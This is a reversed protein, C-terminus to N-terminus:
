AISYEENTVDELDITFSLDLGSVWGPEHGDNVTLDVKSNIDSLRYNINHFGNGFRIDELSQCKGNDRIKIFLKKNTLLFQMCVKTANSHNIINSIAEKIIREINVKIKASVVTNKDDIQTTFQIDMAKEQLREKTNLCCKFVIDHLNWHNQDDILYITDRLLQYIDNAIRKLSPNDIKRALDLLNPCVEDHLDRMIRAREKLHIEDRASKLAFIYDFLSRLSILLKEDERNFLSKGSKKGNLVLTKKNSGNNVKLLLGHDALQIRQVTSDSEIISVPTFIKNLVSEWADNICRNHKFVSDIIAFVPYLDASNENVKFVHQRIPFWIWGVLLLSAILSVSPSIDLLALISLDVIFIIIGAVFWLWSMQWWHDIQFLKYKIVGLIIGAYMIFVIFQAILPNAATKNQTINPVFYFLIYAITASFMFFFLWYLAAREVPKDKARQWQFYMSPLGLALAIMTNFYFTHIPWDFIQLWENILNCAVWVTILTIVPLKSLRFPYTMVVLVMTYTFTIAGIHNIICLTIFVNEALAIERHLYVAHTTLTLYFGICGLFILNKAATASRSLYIIAGIMLAFLGLGTTLWFSWPLSQYPRQTQPHIVVKRDALSIVITPQQLITFLANQYAFFQNYQEFTSLTDPEMPNSRTNLPIQHRSEISPQNNSDAPTALELGLVNDGEHIKNWVPSNKHVKGVVFVTSQDDKEVLQMGLWPTQVTLFFSILVGAIGIQAILLILKIPPLGIM